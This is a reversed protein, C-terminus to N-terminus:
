GELMREGTGLRYIKYTISGPPYGHKYEITQIFPSLECQYMHFFDLRQNSKERWTFIKLQPKACRCIDSSNLSKM